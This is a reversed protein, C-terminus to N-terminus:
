YTTPLTFRINLGRLQLQDGRGKFGSCLLASVVAKSILLTGAYM